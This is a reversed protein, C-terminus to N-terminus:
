NSLLVRLMEETTTVGERVKRRASDELTQMGHAKALERLESTSAGHRVARRFEEDLPLVEFIATRGAYGTHFNTDAAIGRTLEVHEAEHHEIHLLECEAGDPRYKESNEPDIVRLLRQSVICNVADAIFMPPVGFERLVDIASVADNAHLSSLVLVGTLGARAAIQATEPDRIEGVMMVNPDMRLVGRLAEPFGFGIKPEVQIQNIGEVRREVPDEITTLSVDDKNLANICSYMTTSKGSGVPGVTLVMGYPQGIQKMLLEAQDEYLGLEALKTFARSDPMLRLVLREGFITPSSGVRIDRENRAASNSIHGDQAHRRETIDMGALLKVRSVVNSRMSAPLRLVEHLLGDVRLRIRLGDATPDFHVDTANLQFAREILLDVLPGPGVVGALGALEAQLAKQRSDGTSAKPDQGDTARDATASM